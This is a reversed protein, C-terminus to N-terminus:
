PLSPPAALWEPVHRVGDPSTREALTFAWLFHEDLDIADAFAEPSRDAPLPLLMTLRTAREALTGAQTKGARGVILDGEWHGPVARGAAETPRESISVM